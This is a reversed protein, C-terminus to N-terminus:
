DWDGFRVVHAIRQKLERRDGRSSNCRRSRTRLCRGDRRDGRHGLRRRKLLRHLRWELLRKLGRKLLGNLRNLGRRLLGLLWGLLGM